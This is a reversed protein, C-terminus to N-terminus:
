GACALDPTIDTMIIDTITIVSIMTWDHHWQLRVRTVLSRMMVMMMLAIMVGLSVWWWGCRVSDRTKDPVVWGPNIVHGREHHRQTELSHLTETDPVVPTVHLLPRIICKVRPRGPHGWPGCLYCADRARSIAMQHFYWMTFDYRAENIHLLPAPLHWPDKNILDSGLLKM